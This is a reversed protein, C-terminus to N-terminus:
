GACTISRWLWMIGHEEVEREKIVLEDIGREKIVLEDLSGKQMDESTLLKRETGSFTAFANVNVFVIRTDFLFM